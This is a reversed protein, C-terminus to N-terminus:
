VINKEAQICCFDQIEKNNEKVHAGGWSFFVGFINKFTNKKTNKLAGVLEEWPRLARESVLHPEM